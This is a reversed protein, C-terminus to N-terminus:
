LGWDFAGKKWAYVYGILLVAIFVVMELLGIAGLRDFVAAWPFLFALELDFVVYVMAVLYFHVGHRGRTDGRIITLGVGSEYPATRVTGGRFKPRVLVALGLTVLAFALAGAFTVLFPIYALYYEL